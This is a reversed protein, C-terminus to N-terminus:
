ERGAKLLVIYTPFHDSYGGAYIKGNYARKPYGKYKGTKQIMYDRKFIEAEKFFYGNQNEDLWGSSIMIQDFLNWSDKYALTGIGKKYLTVWPNYLGGAKVEEVNGKAGLIKTVSADVPDDNLDGMVIIKVNLNIKVLSDIKQKSISAALARFPRSAEEGGRRSPWHNVFVHVIEGLLEGTVFLVDRTRGYATDITETPVYLSAANKLTFHKPNYLLGVDIGREDKGDIHAIQYNREQLAPMKVLDELVNRNEIEAVGLLAVGDPSDDTGMESIVQSLKGLKDRYVEDTYHNSGEATFEEDEVDEQNVTDFLNELNYFGILGVHYKTTQSCGILCLSLFLSSLFSKFV